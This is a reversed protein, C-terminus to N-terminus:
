VSGYVGTVKWTLADYTIVYHDNGLRTPTYVSGEKMAITTIICDPDVEKMREIMTRFPILGIESSVSKVVDKKQLSFMSGM